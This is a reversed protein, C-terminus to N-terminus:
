KVAAVRKTVAFSQSLTKIHRQATKESCGVKAALQKPTMGQRWVLRCEELLPSGQRSSRIPTPAAPAATEGNALRTITSQISALVTGSKRGNAAAAVSTIAESMDLMQGDLQKVAKKRQRTLVGLFSELTKHAENSLKEGITQAMPATIMPRSMSIVKMAVKAWRNKARYFVSLLGQDCGLANLSQHSRNSRQHASSVLLLIPDYQIPKLQQVRRM